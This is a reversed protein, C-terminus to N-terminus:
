TKFVEQGSGARGYGVRGSRVRGTLQQLGESGLRPDSDYGTVLRSFLSAPIRTDDTNQITRPRRNPYSFPSMPFLAVINRPVM